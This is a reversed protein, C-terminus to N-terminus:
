LVAVIAEELILLLTRLNHWIFAIFFKTTRKAVLMANAEILAILTWFLYKGLKGVDMVLNWLPEIRHIIYWTVKGILSLLPRLIASIAWAILHAIQWLMSRHENTDGRERARREYAFEGMAWRHLWHAFNWIRPFRIHYVDYFTVSTEYGLWKSGWWDRHTGYWFNAWGDGLRTHFGRLTNCVAIVLDFLWPVTLKSDIAGLTSWIKKLWGPM